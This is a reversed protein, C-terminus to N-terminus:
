AASGGGDAAAGGGNRKLSNLDYDGLLKFVHSGGNPVDHAGRAM